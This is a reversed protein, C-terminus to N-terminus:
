GQTALMQQVRKMERQLQEAADPDPSGFLVMRVVRRRVDVPVEETDLALDMTEVMRRIFKMQASYEADTLYAARVGPMGDVYRQFEVAVPSMRRESM